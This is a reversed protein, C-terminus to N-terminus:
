PWSTATREGINCAQSKLYLTLFLNPLSQSISLCCSIFRGADGTTNSELLSHGFVLFALLMNGNSADRSLEICKWAAMKYQRVLDNTHNNQLDECDDCMFIKDPLRRAGSAWYIFLLGLSEWRLNPGSFESFWIEPDTHTKGLPTSSNRCLRFSLRRLPEEDRLNLGLIEGFSTWLSENLEVPAGTSWCGYFNSHLKALFKSSAMDPIARLVSLALEDFRPFIEVIKLPLELDPESKEVVSLSKQAEEYFASFSTAGLYGTSNETLNTQPPSRNVTVSVSVSHGNAAQPRLPPV